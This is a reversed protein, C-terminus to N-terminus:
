FSFLNLQNCDTDQDATDDTELFARNLPIKEFVSVSLIQLLTYLSSACICAEIGASNRSCISVPVRWERSPAGDSM